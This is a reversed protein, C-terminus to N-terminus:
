RSVEWSGNAMRGGTGAAARERTATACLGCPEAGAAPESWVLGCMTRPPTWELEDREHAADATM